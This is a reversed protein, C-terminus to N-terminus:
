TVPAKNTLAFVIQRDSIHLLSQLYERTAMIVFALEACLFIGLYYIALWDGHPIEFNVEQLVASRTPVYNSPTRGVLLRYDDDTKAGATVTGGTKEYERGIQQGQTITVSDELRSNYRFYCVVSLVILLLPTLLLLASGMFSFVKKTVRFASDEDPASQDTFLPLKELTGRFLGVAFAHRAYFVWAVTLFGLLGSMTALSKAQQSYIPIAHSLTLVPAFAATIIPMVGMYGRLFTAFGRFSNPSVAGTTSIDPPTATPSTSAM